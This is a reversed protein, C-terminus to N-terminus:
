TYSEKLMNYRRLYCNGKETTVYVSKRKVNNVEVLGVETLKKLYVQLQHSNLRAKKGINTRSEGKQTLALINAVIETRSRKKGVLLSDSALM